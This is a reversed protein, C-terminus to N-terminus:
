KNLLSNKQMLYRVANPLYRSARPREVDGVGLERLVGIIKGEITARYLPRFNYPEVYSLIAKAWDYESATVVGDQVEGAERYPNFSSLRMSYTKNHLEDSVSLAVVAPKRNRIPSLIDNLHYQLWLVEEERLTFADALMWAIVTKTAEFMEEATALLVADQKQVLTKM